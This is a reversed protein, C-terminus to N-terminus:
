GNLVDQFQDQNMSADVERSPFTRGKFMSGVVKTGSPLSVISQPSYQKEVGDRVELIWSSSYRALTEGVAGLIGSVPM